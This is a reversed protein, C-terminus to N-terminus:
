LKSPPLPRDLDELTLGKMVANNSWRVFQELLQNNESEMRNLRDTLEQIRAKAQNMGVSGHGGEVSRVRSKANEWALKVRDHRLMAAKTYKHGLDLELVSLYIDWTLKGAWGDLLEVATAIDADSLRKGAGKAM